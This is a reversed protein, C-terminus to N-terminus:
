RELVVMRQKLVQGGAEMRAFYVGAGAGGEGGRHWTADYAGAGYEGDVLTAVRRGSLDYVGIKVHTARPLAFRVRADGRAPNAGAVAFSIEAPVDDGVALPACPSGDAVLARFPFNTVGSVTIDDVFWGVSGFSGDSAFRFRIRVSKGAYATGFALTATSLAPYSASTGVFAARGPMPNDWDSSITGPYAPTMSAGVDTWTAGADQSIEVVGGDYNGAMDAEFQYAHRFTVTFAGSGVTIPPSVLLQEQLEDRDPVFFSHNLPNVSTVGVGWAWTPTGSGGQLPTWNPVRVEVSDVRATTEDANGWFAADFTHPAPDLFMPDTATVHVDQRQSGAGAACHVLLSAQVVQGPPIPPFTILGGNDFTLAPNSSTVLAKTETLGVGFASGVVTVTVRGTEGADLYGDLDCSHLSDSLTVAAITLDGGWAYGDYAGELEYSYRDPVVADLGLGRKAFAAGFLQYDKPDNAHAVMLLADRADVLTPTSPTMMLSAVLYNRMRDRAQTFTLRGSDRLLAAYCEWLMACWVEGVKHVENNSVWDYDTLRPVEPPMAASVAIHSLRLPQKTMDTTYPYRRIGFYYANSAAVSSQAIYSGATWAGAWGSNSAVAADEPRVSMLLAVFDSWGEGMGGGQQNWLGEANAGVLRMSLYHGWEHAVIQNDVSADRLVSQAANLTVTVPTGAKLADEIALGDELGIAIVPITVGPITAGLSAPASFRYRVLAASAGRAQAAVISSDYRCTNNSSILAIRGTLSSTYPPCLAAPMTVLGSLVTVDNTTFNASVLDVNGDGTVDAAAVGYPTTGVTYSVPAGLVGAGNNALVAVKNVVDCCVEVDAIGDGTVDNTIVTVPSAPVAYSTMAGFGGAGNGLLVGVSNSGYNAVAVDLKADGNLDAISLTLPQAGVAFDTKAGFGGSGNGLLVSISNGGANATVLDRKGDGNVDAIAVWNPNAGAPFDARAAFGGSGNGLFVSVTNSGYNAVAIDDNGDANLRGVQAVSAAAGTVFDTRAGFLGSGTGLRVSMNGAANNASVLDLRGDNNFDGTMVTFPGNGTAYTTVGAFAGGGLGLRVAVDNSSYDASALDPIGDNNLDAVHVWELGTGMAVSASGATGFTGSVPRAISGTVTFSNSTTLSRVAPKAGAIGAPSVVTCQALDAEHWLYMQMRPSGGDAPVAMNANDFGSYDMAEALIPDGQVGGRGFNSSQANGAAENFGADYFWDHLWNNVYFLNTIAAMRQTANADPAIAPNYTRDFANAGTTTARVDGASFGDPEALDAYADVNNGTTVTAGSPLWPDNSSIPGRSLGILSPTAYGSPMSLDPLGTPHPTMGNGQAGDFPAHLSTGDAYVRYQFTDQALQSRKALIGGDVASVVYAFAADSRSLELVYAPVLEGPLQFLVRKIRITREAGASASKEIRTAAVSWTDYGGEAAPGPKFESSGVASGTFDALATALAETASHAFARAGVRKGEAASPINGSIALLGLQRDMLVKVADGYVEIGDVSQTFTAIVGGSGTDHVQRLTASKVDAAGLRYWPAFRTLHERAATEATPSVLTPSVPTAAQVRLFSPVGRREDLSRVDAPAIRAAQERAAAWAASQGATPRAKSARDLEPAEARATGTSLAGLFLGALFTALLLTHRPPVRPARPQSPAYGHM